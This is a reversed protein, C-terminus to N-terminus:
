EGATQAQLQDQGSTAEARDAPAGARKRWLFIVATALLTIGAGAWFATPAGFREAVAGAMLSGIPTVGLFMLSYVSMVRGQLHEPSLGLVRSNATTSFLTICFGTPLLLALAVGFNTTFAFALELILFAFAGGYILRRALDQRSYFSLVVAALLSGAGQATLLIGFGSSNLHLVFRAFVPLLTTFNLAFLSTIGVLSLIVLVRTDHWIYRFGEALDSVYTSPETRPRSETRVTRILMLSVIVAIYSAANIYFAWGPGTAAYLLGGLAPGVVRASNLITSNLAVANLLAKRPVLEPVFSQRAPTYFANVTGLSGAIILIEWYQVIHLITLTGLIAALIMSLVQTILLLLRKDMRDAVPGTFLVLLLLPLFQVTVILGVQFASHTIQLVLWQQAVSQVWTGTLSIMQGFWFLRFGRSELAPLRSPRAEIEAKVPGIM